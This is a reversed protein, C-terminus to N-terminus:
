APHRNRAHASNRVYHELTSKRGSLTKHRSTQVKRATLQERKRKTITITLWGRGESELSQKAAMSAPDGNERKRTAKHGNGVYIQPRRDSERTGIGAKVM